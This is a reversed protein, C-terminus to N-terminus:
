WISPKIGTESICLFFYKGVNYISEMDVIQTSNVYLILLGTKSSIHFDSSWDCSQKPLLTNEFIVHHSTVPGAAEFSLTLNVNM